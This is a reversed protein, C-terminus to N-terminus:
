FILSVFCIVFQTFNVIDWGLKVRHYLFLNQVEGQTMGNMVFHMVMLCIIINRVGYERQKFLCKICQHALRPDFFELCANKAKELPIEAEEIQLTSQQVAGDTELAPNDYAADAVVPKPVEKLYIIIYLIGIIHVPIMM